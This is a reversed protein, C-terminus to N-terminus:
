RAGGVRGGPARLPATPPAYGRPGPRRRGRELLDAALSDEDGLDFRSQGVAPGVGGDVRGLVHGRGHRIGEHQGGHWAAGIGAVAQDAAGQGRERRAAEDGGARDAAAGLQRMQSRVQDEGRQAAVHGPPDVRRTGTTDARDDDRHSGHLAQAPLTAQGVHQIGDVHQGLGSLAGDGHLAPGIVAARPPQERSTSWTGLWRATRASRATSAARPPLQATGTAANARGAEPSAASGSPVRHSVPRSAPPSPRM